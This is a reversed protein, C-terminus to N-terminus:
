KRSERRYRRYVVWGGARVGAYIIWARYLPVGLLRCGDYLIKDADARSCIGTEYLYDHIVGALNYPGEPIPVIAPISALDTRFGRPVKTLIEVGTEDEYTWRISELLSWYRGEIYRM